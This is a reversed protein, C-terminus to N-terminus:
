SNTGERAQKEEVWNTRKKVAVEVDLNITEAFRTEEEKM